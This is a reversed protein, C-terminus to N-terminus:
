PNIVNGHTDRFAQSQALLPKADYMAHLVPLSHSSSQKLGRTTSLILAIAAKWNVM